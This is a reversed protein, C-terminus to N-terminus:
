VDSKGELCSHLSSIDEHRQFARTRCELGSTKRAHGIRSAMATMIRLLTAGNHLLRDCNQDLFMLSEFQLLSTCSSQNEEDNMRIAQSQQVKSCSSRCLQDHVEQSRM